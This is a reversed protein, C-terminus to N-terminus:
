LRPCRWPAGQVGVDRVLVPAELRTVVAQREGADQARRTAQIGTRLGMERWSAALLEPKPPNLLAPDM